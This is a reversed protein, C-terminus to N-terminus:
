VKRYGQEMNFVWYHYFFNISWWPFCFAADREVSYELWDRHNYWDSNFDQKCEKQPYRDFEFYM